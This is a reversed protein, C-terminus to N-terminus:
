QGFIEEVTSRSGAPFGTTSRAPNRTDGVPALIQAVYATRQGSKVARYLAPLRHEPLADAFFPTLNTQRSPSRRANKLPLKTWASTTVSGHDALEVASGTTPANPSAIATLSWRTPSATRLEQQLSERCCGTFAECRDRIVVGAKRIGLLSLQHVANHLMLIGSMGVLRMPVLDSYPHLRARMGAALIVARISTLM